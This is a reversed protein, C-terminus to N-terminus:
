RGPLRLARMESRTESGDAGTATVWWRYDGPALGAPLALVLVTDATTRSLAVAGGGTLLEFRYGAAGPASRWAFTIPGGSSAIGTPPGVLALSPEGGRVPEASPAWLRRGPGLAVVLVLAAAAALPAWRRWGIFGVVRGPEADRHEGTMAEAGEGAAKEGAREIARLLEFEAGCTPCAMVHDLVTLRQEDSGERRVVSLIAEPVPCATRRGPARTAVARAYAERLGEDSM